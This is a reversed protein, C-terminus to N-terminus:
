PSYGMLSRQGHPNELCSYQLPNGYGGSPSRGLGLISGLDGVQGFGSRRVCGEENSGKVRHIDSCLQTAPICIIQHSGAAPSGRGFLTLAGGSKVSTTEFLTQESGLLGSQGLLPSDPAPFVTLVLLTMWYKATMAAMPSRLLFSCVGPLTLRSDELPRYQLFPPPPPPPRKGAM